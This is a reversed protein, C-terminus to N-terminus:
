LEALFDKMYSFKKFSLAMFLIYGLLMFGAEEFDFVLVGSLVFILTILTVIWDLTFIGILYQKKNCRIWVGHFLPLVTGKTSDKMSGDEYMLCFYNEYSKLYFGEEYVSFWPKFNETNKELTKKAEEINEVPRFYIM